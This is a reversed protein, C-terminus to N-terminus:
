PGFFLFYFMLLLYFFLILGQSLWCASNFVALKLSGAWWLVIHYTSIVLVSFWFCLPSSLIYQLSLFLVDECVVALVNWTWSKCSLFLALSTCFSFLPSSTSPPCIHPNNTHIISCMVVCSYCVTHSHSHRYSNGHTSQPWGNCSCIVFICVHCTFGWWRWFLIVSDCIVAKVRVTIMWSPQMNSKIFWCITEFDIFSLPNFFDILLLDMFKEM